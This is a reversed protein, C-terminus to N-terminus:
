VCRFILKNTICSDKHLLDTVYAKNLLKTLAHYAERYISYAFTKVSSTQSLEIVCITINYRLGKTNKGSM